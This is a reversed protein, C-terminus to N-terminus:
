RPGSAVGLSWGPTLLNSDKKGLHKGSHHRKDPEGCIGVTPKWAKAFLLSISSRSKNLMFLKSASLLHCWSKRVAFLVVYFQLCIVSVLDIRIVVIYLSDECLARRVKCDRVLDGLIRLMEFNRKMLSDKLKSNKLSSM